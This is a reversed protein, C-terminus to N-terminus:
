NEITKNYIEIFKVIEKWVEEIGDADILRDSLIIFQNNLEESLSDLRQRIIKEYVPMLQNWSRHYLLYKKNIRESLKGEPFDSICGFPFQKNNFRAILENGELREQKTM